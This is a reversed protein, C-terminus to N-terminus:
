SSLSLRSLYWFCGNKVSLSLQILKLHITPKCQTTLWNEIKQNKYKGQSNFKTGVIKGNDDVGFILYAM